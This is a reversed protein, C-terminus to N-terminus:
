PMSIQLLYSNFSLFSFSPLIPSLPFFIIQQHIFKLDPLPWMISWFHILIDKIVWINNDPSTDIHKQLSVILVVVFLDSSPFSLGSWYEQRSFGMSLPAQCAVTWPTELTPCSKAVLGVLYNILPKNYLKHNDNDNM